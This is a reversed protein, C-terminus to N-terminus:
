NEEECPASKHRLEQAVFRGKLTRAYIFSATKDIHQAPQGSAARINIREPSLNGQEPFGFERNRRGPFEGAFGQSASFKGAESVGYGALDLVKGQLSGTNLSVLCSVLESFVADM